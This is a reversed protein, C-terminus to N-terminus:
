DDDAGDDGWGGGGGENSPGVGGIAINISVPPIDQVAPAEYPEKPM